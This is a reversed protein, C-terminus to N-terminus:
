AGSKAARFYREVWVAYILAALCMGAAMWTMAPGVLELARAQDPTGAPQGASRLLADPGLRRWTVLLSALVWLQSILMAWWGARELRYLSWACWGSVATAVLLYVVAAGGSLMVGFWPVSLPSRFLLPVLCAAGLAYMLSLALIPAPCADTWAPGPDRAECTAKVDGGGYFLLMAGPVLVFLAFGAGIVITVTAGTTGAAPQGASMADLLRPLMLALGAVVGIGAALWLGSVIVLLSRAWRKAMVSGVGLWVNLVAVAALVIASPLAGARSAVATPTTPAARAGPPGMLLVPVLLACAVGLLVVLLGFGKLGAGRDRFAPPVHVAPPQSM